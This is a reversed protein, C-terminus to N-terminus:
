QTRALRLSVDGTVIIERGQPTDLLLRGCEDVGTAIGRHLEVGQEFLSVERGAYAHYGNWRARFPAFGEADFRHLAPALANLIAALTDTLNADPWAQSLAAPTQARHKASADANANIRDALADAGRLNIGIGIVLACAKETIWASEILVGALKEGELLVDNPWKLAIQGPHAVPLSRLVDVLTASVALSLGALADPARPVIRALSFLLADGPAAYWARGRRGYGATQRAAVRAIPHALADARRPLAKLRAILDANTSGTEDVTEIPWARVAPDLRAALRARDIHASMLCLSDNM